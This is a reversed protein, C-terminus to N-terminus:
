VPGDRVLKNVSGKGRQRIILVPHFFTQGSVDFWDCTHLSTFQWCLLDPAVHEVAHALAFGLRAVLPEVAGVGPAAGVPAASEEAQYRINLNADCGAIALSQLSSQAGYDGSTSGDIVLPRQRASQFDAIACCCRM